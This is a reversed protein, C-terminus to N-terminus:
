EELGVDTESNQVLLEFRPTQLADYGIVKLRGSEVLNQMINESPLTGVYTPVSDHEAFAFKKDMRMKSVWNGMRQPTEQSWTRLKPSLDMYDLIVPEKLYFILFPPRRSLSDEGRDSYFRYSNLQPDRLYRELDSVRSEPSLTFKQQVVPDIIDEWLETSQGATMWGLKKLLGIFVTTGDLDAHPQGAYLSFAGDPRVYFETFVTAVLEELAEQAEKKDAISMDQWLYYVLVRLTFNRDIAWEHQESIRSPMPQALKLLTTRVMASKYRLPYEQYRQKGDEDIIMKIMKPTITLDGNKLLKGTARERVGWYGTVSDQSEWTWRILEKKWEPSFEYLGLAELDTYSGLSSLVYPTKPMKAVIRGVTALDELYAKLEDPEDLNELFTLPYKLELPIHISDALLQMHDIVNLTTAFRTCLPFEDEIFSGDSENQLNLYFDLEVSTSTFEPLKVLGETTKLQHHLAKLLDISRRYEGHDLYYLIGVMQMEFKAMYYGDARRLSNLEFMEDVMQTANYVRISLAGLSCIFILAIILVWSKMRINVKM